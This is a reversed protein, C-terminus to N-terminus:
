LYIESYMLGQAQRSGCISEADDRGLPTHPFPHPGHRGHRRTASGQYQPEAQTIPPSPFVPLAPCVPFGRSALM